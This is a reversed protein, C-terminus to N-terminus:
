IEPRNQRKAEKGLSSSKFFSRNRNLKRQNYQELLELEIDFYWETRLNRM